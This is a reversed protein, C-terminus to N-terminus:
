GPCVPLSIFTALHPSCPACKYDWCEPPQLVLMMFLDITMLDETVLALM